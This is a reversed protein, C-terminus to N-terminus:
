LAYKCERERQLLSSAWREPWGRAVGKTGGRAAHKMRRSKAFISMIGSHKNGDNAKPATRAHLISTAIISLGLRLMEEKAQENTRKREVM